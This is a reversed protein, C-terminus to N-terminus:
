SGPGGPGVGDSPEAQVLTVTGSHAAEIVAEAEALDSVGLTAVAASTSGPLLSSGGRNVALLTAGRMVVTVVPSGSGSGSGLSASASSSPTALVDVANGAVLGALSDPDVAVSVPRVPPGGPPTLMSQQLLEGPVAAVALTRGVVVAQEHFSVAKTAAALTMSEIMTDGPGIVTGAPLDRAAVVVAQGHRQATDAVAAFVMVAAAAVLFGGVVARRTPLGRRRGTLVGAQSGPSPM